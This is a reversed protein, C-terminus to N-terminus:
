QLEQGNVTGIWQSVGLKYPLGTVKSVISFSGDSLATTLPFTFFGVIAAILLIFQM